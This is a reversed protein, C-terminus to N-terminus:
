CKWKTEELHWRGFMLSCLAVPDSAPIDEDLSNRSLMQVSWIMHSTNGSAVINKSLMIWCLYKMDPCLFYSNSTIQHSFTEKHMQQTHTHTHTHTHSHTHTHTHAHTHTHTHAHTHIHYQLLTFGKGAHQTNAATNPRPGNERERNHGDPRYTHGRATILLLGAHRSVCSLFRLCLSLFLVRHFLQLCLQVDVAKYVLQQKVSLLSFCRNM